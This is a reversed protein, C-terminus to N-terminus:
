KMVPNEKVAARPLKDVFSFIEGHNKVKQPIIWAEGGGEFVLETRWVYRTGFRNVGTRPIAGRLDSWLFHRGDRRTVGSADFLKVSKRSANSRLFVILFVISLNISVLAVTRLTFGNTLCALLTLGGFFVYFVIAAVDTTRSYLVDIPAAPKDIARWDIEEYELSKLRRRIKLARAFLSAAGISGIFGVAGTLVAENLYRAASRENSRIIENQDYRAADLTDPNQRLYAAYKAAENFHQFTWFSWVGFCIGVLVLFTGAFASFLARDPRETRAKTFKGAPKM